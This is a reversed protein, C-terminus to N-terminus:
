CWCRIAHSRDFSWKYLTCDTPTAWIGHLEFEVDIYDYEHERDHRHKTRVSSEIVIRTYRIIAHMDASITWEAFKLGFAFSYFKSVSFSCAEM